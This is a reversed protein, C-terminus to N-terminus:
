AGGSDGQNTDHLLQLLNKESELLLAADPADHKEMIQALAQSIDDDAADLPLDVRDIVLTKDMQALAKLAKGHDPAELAQKAQDLLALSQDRATGPPLRHLAGDLPLLDALAAENDEQSLQARLYDLLARAEGTTRQTRVLNLLLRAQSLADVAENLHANRVDRSAEAVRALASATYVRAPQLGAATLGTGASDAYSIGSGAILLAALLTTATRSPNM